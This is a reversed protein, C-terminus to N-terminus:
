FWNKICEWCKKTCKTRAKKGKYLLNRLGPPPPVPNNNESMNLENDENM